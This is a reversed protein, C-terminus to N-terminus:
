IEVRTQCQSSTILPLSCNSDRNYLTGSPIQAAQESRPVSIALSCGHVQNQPLHIKSYREHAMENSSTASAFKLKKLKLLSRDAAIDCAEELEFLLMSRAEAQDDPLANTSLSDSRNSKFTLVKLKSGTV